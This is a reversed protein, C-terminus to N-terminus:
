VFSSYLCTSDEWTDVLDSYSRRGTHNCSTFTRHLVKRSIHLIMAVRMFCDIKM